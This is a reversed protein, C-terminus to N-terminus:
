EVAVAVQVAHIEGVAADEAYCRVACPLEESVIFALRVAQLDMTVAADEDRIALM